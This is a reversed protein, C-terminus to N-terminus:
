VKPNYKVSYKASQFHKIKEFKQMSTGISIFM